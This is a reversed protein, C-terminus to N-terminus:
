PKTTYKSTLLNKGGCEGYKQIYTLDLFFCSVVRVKHFLVKSFKSQQQSFHLPMITFFITCQNVETNDGPLPKDNDEFM